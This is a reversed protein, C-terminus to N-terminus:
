LSMSPLKGAAPPAVARNMSQIPTPRPKRPGPQRYYYNVNPTRKLLSRISVSSTILHPEGGFFCRCCQRTIASTTRGDSRENIIGFWPGVLADPSGAAREGACDDPMQHIVSLLVKFLCFSVTISRVDVRNIWVKVVRRAITLESSARGIKRLSRSPLFPAIGLDHPFERLFSPSLVWM